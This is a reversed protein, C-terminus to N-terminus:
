DSLSNLFKMREKGASMMLATDGGGQCVRAGMRIYKEMLAHDYIGGMGPYKGHKECAVIVTEYAAAIREHELEGPIGMTAALDNSGILVCDIGPVAAIAEANAVAEPTEVMVIIFTTENLAAIADSAPMAEFSLQPVPAAVSRHGIPPFKCNDVVRQAQEPTDVHPVVVGMAGGDLARTAHFSEHGAVRVIPTIGVPLAALCLASVTDLDMTNHETDIFLWDFGCEKGIWPVAVYRSVVLNLSFVRGGAELKKKMANEIVPM